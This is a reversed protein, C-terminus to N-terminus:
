RRLVPATGQDLLVLWGGDAGGPEGQKDGPLTLLRDGGAVDRSRM